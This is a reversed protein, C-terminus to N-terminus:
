YQVNKFNKLSNVKRKKKKDKEEWGVEKDM